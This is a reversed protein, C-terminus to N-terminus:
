QAWIGDRYLKSIRVKVIANATYKKAPLYVRIYNDSYGKASDSGFEVLVSLTKGIFRQYFDASLGKSLAKLSKVREKVLAGQPRASFSFAPTGKRPSFSFLHMRSPKIKQLFNVTNQFNRDEEQPFGVIIDTTIAIDPCKKRLALALDLYDKSSFKRNMLKLIKDDGSQFPVHLHHCLKGSESLKDILREDIDSAEISSLRIRLLGPIKELEDIVNILGKPPKFDKGYAGLCIGCLVIERYGNNILTEAEDIILKLPRSKSRGRVKPVICYSCYNNCGDQIKLFVRTHKQFKSISSLRPNKSPGFLEPLLNMVKGKQKNRIIGSVGEIDQLGLQSNEIGCGTVFIRAKPGQKHLSRILGASENDARHTVTCTNVIYIDANHNDSELLGAGSLKEYLLQGEYQNVKCGFTYIKFTM